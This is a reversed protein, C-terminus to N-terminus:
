TADRGRDRIDYLEQKFEGHFPETLRGRPELGIAFCDEDASPKHLTMAINEASLRPDLNQILADRYSKAYRPRVLVGKRAGVLILVFSYPNAQTYTFYSATVGPFAPSFFDDLIVIGDEACLRDAVALDTYVTRGDHLGDIHLMRFRQRLRDPDVHDLTDQSYSQVFKFRPDALDLGVAAFTETVHPRLRDAIADIMLFQESDAVYGATLAASKGHWVGIELCNGTIGKAKQHALLIDFTIAAAPLFFGSVDSTPKLFRQSFSM